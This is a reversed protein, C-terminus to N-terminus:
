IHKRSGFWTPKDGGHDISYPVGGISVVQQMKIVLM